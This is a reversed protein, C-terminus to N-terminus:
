KILSITGTINHLVKDLTWVHLFYVYIGVPVVNGNHTGDWASNIDDAEFLLTGWRDYVVVNYENTDANHIIPKWVDNKYDHNPTFANPIWVGSTPPIKIIAITDDICGFESMVELKVPYIGAEEFDKNVVPGYKSENSFIWENDISGISLDTFQVETYPEKLGGQYTFEAHPKPYSYFNDQINVICGDNTILEVGLSTKGPLTINFHYTNKSTTTIKNNISWRWKNVNLTPADVWLDYPVCSDVQSYRLYGEPIEYPEIITQLKIPKMCNDSILLTAITKKDLSYIFTSTDLTTINWSYTYNGNGGIANATIRTPENPCVRDWNINGVLSDSMVLNTTLTNTVCGNKDRIYVSVTSDVNITNKWNMGITGDSWIAQYNPTGGIPLTRIETPTLECIPNRSIISLHLSDPENITFNLTDKCTNDQIALLYNGPNLSTISDVNFGTTKRKILTNNYWSYQLNGMSNKIFALVKGNTDGYCQVNNIVLSDVMVGDDGPLYLVTDISCNSYLDKIIVSYRGSDLNRRFNAGSIINGFDYRLSRASGGVNVLLIGDGIGGNTNVCHEPVVITSLIELTNKEKVTITDYVNCESYVPHLIKGLFDKRNTLPKTRVKIGTDVVFNVSPKWKYSYTYNSDLNKINKMELGITASDCINKDLTFLDFKISDMYVNVTDFCTDRAATIRRVWYSSDRLHVIPGITETTDGTSWLHEITGCNNTIEIDDIGWHDFAQTTSQLQVWRFETVTTQAAAPIKFCYRAWATYDGSNTNAANFNGRPNPQFYTINTWTGFLVRYQLTVGENAQDPGECPSAQGQISFMLDFCINGGCKVNLPLSTLSRPATSTNGFWLYTSAKTGCPNATSASSTTAWGLGINGSNFNNELATQGLSDHQFSITDGCLVHLSDLGYIIVSCQAIAFNGIISLLLVLNLKKM